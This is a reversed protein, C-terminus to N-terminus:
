ENRLLPAAKTGLARWTGAYGFALTLLLALLATALVTAPLFQWEQKMIRTLVFYAAVSGFSAAIM